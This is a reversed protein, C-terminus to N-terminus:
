KIGKSPIVNILSLAEGQAVTPNEVANISLLSAAESAGTPIKSM